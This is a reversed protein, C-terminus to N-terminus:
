AFAFLKYLSIISENLQKRLELYFQYGLKIGFYIIIAGCIINIFKMHRINLTSKFQSVLTTLGFFWSISALCVGLIFLKSSEHPLSANFGGLLLSGDILAQPNAWTIFFCAALIQPITKNTDISNNLTPKTRLLQIGIYLIAFSGILLIIMRLLEFKEMIAGMGFFCALALSIDFLITIGAVLFAKSRKHAFANNIVYINQMGIPAVYAIGLIFGQLLIKM